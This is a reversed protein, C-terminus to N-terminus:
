KVSEEQIRRALRIDQPLITVCKAHITCLNTDEFLRIIYVETAEHLALLAGAQIFHDGHDCQIIEKVLRLFPM